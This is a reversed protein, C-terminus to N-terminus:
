LVSEQGQRRSRTNWLKELAIYTHTFCSSQKVHENEVKNLRELHIELIIIHM